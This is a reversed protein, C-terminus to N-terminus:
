SSDTRRLFARAGRTALMGTGVSLALILLGFAFFPLSRIFDRWLGLLGSWAPRFDWVSPEPVEMRNAVAVVDQTNRALDGAWKKLEDSEAGVTSFSSEKRSGSKHTPSGTPPMWSARSDSASKKMARSPSSTWRRPRRPSIKQPPFPHNQLESAEGVPEQAVVTSTLASCASSLLLLRLLLKYGHYTSRQM